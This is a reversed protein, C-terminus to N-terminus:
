LRLGRPLLRRELRVFALQSFVALLAAPAAGSLILAYDDLRIGTLIPQGLGGAGVLAGLTAFGINLVLATRVGALLMPLSLPLYLLHVRRWGRLGMVDAVHSLSQPISELGTLFNRYIPLLSYLFLAVIAPTNGIAPLGLASLPRILFVLLALAPITQIISVTGSIWQGARPARYSLLGLPLAVLVAPVMSFFVLLVHSWTALLAPELVRRTSTPADLGLYRRAVATESRHDLTVEANLARMRHEDLTGSLRALAQRLGPHEMLAATRVLVHAEYRPFFSRDDALVTLDYRAIESDTSYLDVVDLQNQALARYAINHDIGQAALRHLEYARKLGPWGDARELFESSFGATLKHARLDSIRTVGLDAARDRKMGLAYTNNFGLAPLIEVGKARAASQLEEFSPSPLHFIEEALTGSYEVYMDVEGAVLSNWVLRTGGLERMHEVRLDKLDLSERIIEGLIVSETFKKSAVRLPRAQAHM